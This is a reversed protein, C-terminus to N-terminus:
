HWAAHHIILKQVDTANGNTFRVHYLGNALHETKIEMQDGSIVHIEFPVSQGISNFIEIQRVAIKEGLFTVSNSAPNPYMSIQLADVLNVERIESYIFEGNFDVQKLRYYNVGNQPYQDELYYYEPEATTGHGDVIGIETWDYGNLSKQVRFYDNDIERTTYWDLDVTQKENLKADFYLMEVPLPTVLNISAITVFRTANNPIHTTSIGSATITPNAYSFVIGSGDGNYYCQTGGNGFNGDDDVLLRLHAVNVSGPAGCANLKVDMNYTGSNNTRTVKWERELRSTILCNTLGAPIESMASGTTCLKGTNAGMMIYSVDSAFTGGNSANAAALSSIYIRVTDDDQHSQKQTLGEADDRGIGIINQNYPATTTYITTGSTSLYNESLTIGYKVALYSHIKQRETATLASRYGILEAVPGKWDRSHGSFVTPDWLDRQGGLFRNITTSGGTTCSASLIHKTGANNANCTINSGNRQWTGAPASSGFDNPDYGSLQVASVTNTGDAEGHLTGNAPASTTVDDVTAIHTNIRSLDTLHFAFFLSTYNIGALGNYGSLSLFQRNPACGNALTGAPGTFDIYPNYNYSTSTANLNPAGNILVPTGGTSQNTWGTVPSSGTVGTNSKVWTELGNFVGGPANCIIIARTGAPNTAAIAPSSGSNYVAASATFQTILGDITNGPTGSNNLDYVLWFYNIGSSLNQSGNISYASTSPSASSGFLSSTSFTSSAGTYYIKAGSLNPPVASGSFSTQIQTVTKPSTVGTTTIELRVIVENSACNMVTATSAQTVTAATISMPPPCNGTGNTGGATPNHSAIITTGGGDLVEARMESEYSGAATEIVSITAGTPASFTFDLPGVGTTFTSGLNTLVDVGNVRVKIIGGNWGDGYTDTLRVTHNCGCAVSSSLNAMVTANPLGNINESGGTKTVNQTAAATIARVQIGSITIADSGNTRNAQSSAYTITITTATVTVSMSTIDGSSSNVSGSGASFEFNAPASIIITYSTNIAALPIDTNAGETIVINGLASYGSPFTCTSISLSPATVTVAAHLTNLLISFLLLTTFKKM